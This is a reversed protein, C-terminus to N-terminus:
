QHAAFNRPAARFAALNDATSFMHLRHRFWCAFDLSGDAADHGRLAEIIDMGGAVPAYTEPYAIFKDRAEATSFHYTKSQYETVLEPRTPALRREDRLAVPCFGRLCDGSQLSAKIGADVDAKERALDAQAWDLGVLEEMDATPAERANEEGTFADRVDDALEDPVQAPIQTVVSENATSPKEPLTALESQPNSCVPLEFKTEAAAVDSVLEPAPATPVWRGDNPIIILPQSTAGLSPLEDVSTILPRPLEEVSGVAAPSATASPAPLGAEWAPQVAVPSSHSAVSALAALHETPQPTVPSIRRHAAHLQQLAISAPKNGPDNSLAKQYTAMAAEPEDRQTQIHAVNIQSQTESNVRRFIALSEAYRGQFGIAMALTNVVRPDGPSLDMSAQLLAEASRYDKQQYASFGMDALLAPNQADLGRAHEFYKGATEFDRLATCVVGMRHAYEVTKPSKRQLAAYLERAKELQGRQEAYRAAQYQTDARHRAISPIVNVRPSLSACGASLLALCALMLGIRAGRVFRM